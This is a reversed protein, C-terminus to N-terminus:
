PSTPWSTEKCYAKVTVDDTHGSSVEEVVLQKTWTGESSIVTMRMTTDVVTGRELVIVYRNARSERDAITDNEPTLQVCRCKRTEIVAFDERTVGGGEYIEVPKEIVVSDIM